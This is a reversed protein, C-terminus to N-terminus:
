EDLCSGAFKNTPEKIASINFSKRTGTPTGEDEVVRERVVVERVREEEGGEGGLEGEGGERGERRTVVRKESSM